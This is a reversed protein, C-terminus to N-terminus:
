GSKLGQTMEGPFYERTERDPSNDGIGEEMGAPANRDPVSRVQLKLNTGTIIKNVDTKRLM